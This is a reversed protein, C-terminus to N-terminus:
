HISSQRFQAQRIVEDAVDDATMGEKRLELLHEPDYQIEAQASALGWGKTVLSQQVAQLFQSM